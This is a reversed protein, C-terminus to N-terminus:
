QVIVLRYSNVEAFIRQVEAFSPRHTTIPVKHVRPDKVNVPSVANRTTSSKFSSPVASFDTLISRNSPGPAAYLIISSADIYANWELLIDRVDARWKVEQAARIQSGISGFSAGDNQANSQKGGQKKRIVYRQFCKHVLCQRQYFIGGAFYGGHCLLITWVSNGISTIFKSGEGSLSSPFIKELSDDVEAEYERLLKASFFALDEGLETVSPNMEGEEVHESDSSSSSSVANAEVTPNSVASSTLLLNAEAPLSASPPKGRYGAHFVCRYIEVRAYCIKSEYDFSDAFEVACFPTGDVAFVTGTFNSIQPLDLVPSRAFCAVENTRMTVVVKTSSADEKENIRNSEKNESPLAEDEDESRYVLKLPGGRRQRSAKRKAAKALEEKKLSEEAIGIEAEVNGEDALDFEFAGNGQTAQQYECKSNIIKNELESIRSLLTAVYDGSFTALSMKASGLRALNDSTLNRREYDNRVWSKFSKEVSNLTKEVESLVSM